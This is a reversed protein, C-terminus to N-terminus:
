TRDLQLVQPYRLLARALAAMDEASSIDIGSGDRFPLGNVTHFHTQTMGLEQARRNMTSVCASVSGALREAVAVAADNASAVLVAQLLEELSFVEGARLNVDSGGASSAQRTIKVQTQLSLRGQEVAELALLSLMMKTLSATPWQKGSAQARLIHGTEADELLIAEFAKAPPFPRRRVM